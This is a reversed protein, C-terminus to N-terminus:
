VGVIRSSVFIEFSNRYFCGVFYICSMHKVFRNGGDFKLM